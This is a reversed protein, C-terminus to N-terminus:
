CACVVVIAAKQGKPAKAQATVEKKAKRSQQQFNTVEEIHRGQPSHAHYLHPCTHVCTCVKDGANHERAIPSLIAVNERSRLERNSFTSSSNGADQLFTPFLLFLQRATLDTFM